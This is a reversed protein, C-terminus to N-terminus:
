KIEMRSIQIDGPQFLFRFFFFLFLFLVRIGQYAGVEVGEVAEIRLSVKFESGWSHWQVDVPHEASM